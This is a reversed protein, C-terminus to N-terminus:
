AKTIFKTKGNKIYHSQNKDVKKRLWTPIKNTSQYVVLLERYTTVYITIIKQKLEDKVITIGTDTICVYVGNKGADVKDWSRCYKEKIIQGLGINNQIQEIRNARDISAHRTLQANFMTKM